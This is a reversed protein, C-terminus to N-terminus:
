EGETLALTAGGPEHDLRGLTPPVGLAEAADALGRRLSAEDFALVALRWARALAEEPKLGPVAAQLHAAHQYTLMAVQDITLSQVVPKM